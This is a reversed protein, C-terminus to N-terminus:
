QRSKWKLIEMQKEQKTSNLYELDYNEEACFNNKNPSGFCLVRICNRTMPTDDNEDKQICAM